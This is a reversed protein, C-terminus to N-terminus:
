VESRLATQLIKLDVQNGSCRLVCYQSTCERKDSVVDFEGRFTLYDLKLGPQM